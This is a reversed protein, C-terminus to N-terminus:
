GNREDLRRYGGDVALADSYPHRRDSFICTYPDPREVPVERSALLQQVVERM